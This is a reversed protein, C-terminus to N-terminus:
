FRLEEKKEKKTSEYSAAHLRYYMKEIIERQSYFYEDIQEAQANKRDVVQYLYSLRRFINRPNFKM